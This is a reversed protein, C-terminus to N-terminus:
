SISKRLDNKGSFLRCNTMKMEKYWPCQVCPIDDREEAKHLLMARAYNMKESNLIGVFDEQFANGYDGWHNMCCGLVRGDSNIQPQIWMQSCGREALYVKGYEKRYEDRSTVRMGLVKRIFDKNKVPSFNDWAIKVHFEMGLKLAMQKALLIEYENHGFPVFQWHLKPLKSNYKIKFENIKRINGIVKEFDGGRRYIKYTESSAGDISCTILSFRYKVLGELVDENVTNLNTGTAASLVIEKEHAYEMIKLLDRNLFIEGQSSLEIYRIWPNVDVFNKFNEFKLTQSGLDRATIGQATRCSPCKLQCVTSADLRIRSPRIEM